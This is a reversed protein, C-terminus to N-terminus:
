DFNLCNRNSSATGFGFIAKARSRVYLVPLRILVSTEANAVTAALLGFARSTVRRRSDRLTAASITAM